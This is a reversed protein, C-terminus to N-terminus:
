SRSDPSSASTRPSVSAGRTNSRLHLRHCRDGSSVRQVGLLDQISLGNDPMRVCSTHLTTPVVNRQHSAPGPQTLIRLRGLAQLVAFPSPSYPTSTRMVILSISTSPGGAINAKATTSLRGPNMSAPRGPPGSTLHFQGYWPLRGPRVQPDLSSITGVTNEVAGM